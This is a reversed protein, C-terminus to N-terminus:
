MFIYIFTYVSHASPPGDHVFCAGGLIIRSTCVCRGYCLSKPPTERVVVTNIANTFVEVVRWQGSRERTKDSEAGVGVRWSYLKGAWVCWIARHRVRPKGRQLDHITALPCLHCMIATKVVGRIVFRYKRIKKLFCRHKVKSSKM